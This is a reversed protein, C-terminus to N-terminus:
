AALEAILAAIQNLKRPTLSHFRFAASGDRRILLNAAVRIPQGEANMWIEVSTGRELRCDTELLCGQVSLNGIRGAYRLGRGPVVIEAEGTCGYRPATRREAGNAADDM